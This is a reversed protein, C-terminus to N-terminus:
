GLIAIPIFDDNDDETGALKSQTRVQDCGLYAVMPQEVLDCSCQRLGQNACCVINALVPAERLEIGYALRQRFDSSTLPLDHKHAFVPARATDAEVTALQPVDRCGNHQPVHADMQTPEFGDM